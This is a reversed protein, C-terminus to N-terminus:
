NDRNTVCNKNVIFNINKVKEKMKNNDGEIVINNEIKINKCM